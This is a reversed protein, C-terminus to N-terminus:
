NWLGAPLWMTAILGAHDSPWRGGDTRERRDNGFIEVHFVGLVGSLWRARADRLLVFDLRQDLPDNLDTVDPHCCTYGPFHRGLISQTWTDAFGAALLADYTPTWSPAGPNAADSNLDGAVITVGDLGAAVANILETAQLAQVAAVQQTELHTTIFHYPIGRHTTGLRIWGRKLQYPGLPVFAAYTGQAISTAPVNTRRLVAIQEVARLVTTPSLPLVITTNNQVAAVEYPLRRAAIQRQLEALLDAGDIVAGGAAMDLVTFQVAEQVGVLHPKRAAIEGAIAAMRDPIGSAKVDAWFVQTAAIVAPLNSLDLTFLPGTDGGLFLNQTYVTFPQEPTWPLFSQTVDPPETPGSDTCGAAIAATGALLSIQVARLFPSM